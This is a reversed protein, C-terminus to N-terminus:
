SVSGAPINATQFRSQETMSVPPAVPRPGSCGALIGGLVIACMGALAPSQHKM